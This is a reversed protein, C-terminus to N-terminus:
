LVLWLGWDWGFHEQKGSTDVKELDSILGWLFIVVCVRGGLWEGDKVVEEQDKDARGIVALIDEKLPRWSSSSGELFTVRWNRQARWSNRERKRKRWRKTGARQQRAETAPWDWVRHLWSKLWWPTRTTLFCVTKRSVKDSELQHSQQLDDTGIVRHSMNKNVSSPCLEPGHNSWQGSREYCMFLKISMNETNASCKTHSIPTKNREKCYIEKHIHRKMFCWIAKHYEETRLSATSSHFTSLGTLHKFISLSKNIKRAKLNYKKWKQNVCNRTM